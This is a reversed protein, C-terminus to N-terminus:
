EATAAARKSPHTYFPCRKIWLLLAQWYIGAVVRATMWPYQLLVRAMSATSMATRKLSISADFFRGGDRAIAMFVKLSEGPTTFSWDYDIDMAMFPSVHMKKAPTFRLAQETGISEARPLVYCHREGWPTNSVEAVIAEVTEGSRDFCYYFSVPNFCYGFYSLQTLLRIPGDPATGTQEEVLRRVTTDLPESPDGVHDSRRFRAPAPRRASWFLRGDFLTPLEDLDLYTYFIRYSFRHAVPTTRTHKVRGEFLCSQM